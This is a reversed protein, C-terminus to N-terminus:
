QTDLKTDSKSNVILAVQHNPHVLHDPQLPDMYSIRSAFPNPRYELEDVLHYHQRLYAADRAADLASHATLLVMSPKCHRPLGRTEFADTSNTVTATLSDDIMPTVHQSALLLDLTPRWDNQLYAHGVGPNFLVFV